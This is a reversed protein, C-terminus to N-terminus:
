ALVGPRGGAAATGEGPRPLQCATLQRGLADQDAATAAVQNAVARGGIPPTANADTQRAADAVAEGDPGPGSTVRPSAFDEVACNLAAAIREATDRSVWKWRGRELDGYYHYGVDARKAAAMQPIGLSVRCGRLGKASCALRRGEAFGPIGLEQRRQRIRQHSMGWLAALKYDPQRGLMSEDIPRLCQPVFTPIGLEHRRRRILAGPLGWRRALEEDPLKGLLSEDPLPGMRRARQSPIGLEQRREAIWWWDIGCKAALKADSMTGLLSDDPMRPRHQSQFTPIGLEMRRKRVVQQPLGWMSTLAEDSMTGLLSDDPVVPRVPQKPSLIDEVECELAAALRQAIIPPVNRGVGGEL